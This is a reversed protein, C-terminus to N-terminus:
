HSRDLNHERQCMMCVTSLLSLLCTMVFISIGARQYSLIVGPQYEAPIERIAEVSKSVLKIIKNKDAGVVNRMLQSMLVNQFVSAAVAIGLSSGSGRFTYQASTTTAQQKQPVAAILAILTVTLMIAYGTGTLFFGLSQYTASAGVGYPILPTVAFMLNGIFLMATSQVGLSYYKGTHRMYIGAGLSGLSVGFFNIIFRHAIASYDYNYQSVLYVPGYYFFAFVLGSTFFNALCSAIVTRHLLLPIPLVPEVAKKLEWYVFFFMTLVSASFCGVIRISFWAFQHGGTTVALMFLLLSTVLSLSGLGDIREMSNRKVVHDANDGTVIESDSARKESVLLMLVVISLVALPVQLNFALRWGGLDTAWGGFIGGFAAGVGYAINGLGQFIGRKRLPVYDSVTITSTSLMGGAGVGSVFRGIVLPALTHSLGCMLCGIGFIATCTVSVRKRGFIDSLKGYLPQFASYAVTYSTAVWSINDLQKLDSAIHSMLTTVVTTDLATLFVGFYLALLLILMKARPLEIHGDAARHQEPLLPTSEPDTTAASAM